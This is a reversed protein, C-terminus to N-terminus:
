VVHDATHQFLRVWGFDSTDRNHHNGGMRSEHIGARVGRFAILKQASIRFYVRYNDESELM